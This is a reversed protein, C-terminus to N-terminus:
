WCCADLQYWITDHAGGGGVGGFFILVQLWIWPVTSAMLMRDLLFTGHSLCLACLSPCDSVRSTCYQQSSEWLLNTLFWCKFFHQLKKKKETLVCVCFLDVFWLLPRVCVRTVTWCTTYCLPCNHSHNTLRLCSTLKECLEKLHSKWLCKEWQVLSKRRLVKICQYGCCKVFHVIEVFRLIHIIESFFEWIFNKFFEPWLFDDGNFIFHYFLLFFTKLSLVSVYYIADNHM